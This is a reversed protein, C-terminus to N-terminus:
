KSRDDVQVATSGRLRRHRVGVVKAVVPDLSQDPPLYSKMLQGVGHGVIFRGQNAAFRQLADAPADSRLM